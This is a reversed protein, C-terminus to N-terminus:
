IYAPLNVISGLIYRMPMDMLARPMSVTTQIDAIV